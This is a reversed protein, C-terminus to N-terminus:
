FDERSDVSVAGAEMLKDVLQRQADWKERATPKRNERSPMIAAFPYKFADFQHRQPHKNDYDLGNPSEDPHILEAFSKILYPCNESIYLKSIYWEDEGDVHKIMRLYDLVASNISGRYQKSKDLSTKNVLLLIPEKDKGMKERFTKRFIEVPKRDYGVNSVQSIDMDTDYLIPLRHLKRKLLFEAMLEAREAPTESIDDYLEDAAVITGEHDRQLVELVTVNGYDMGGLTNLEPRLQFPIVHHKRRFNSFFQGEFVDFDGLLQAKRKSDPLSDLKRGYESRTIFYKFRKENSWTHYDDVTLGDERLSKLCWFANDWGYAQLFQFDNPDENEEFDREIFIRKHYAHGAGGPNFTLLMKPVIEEEQENRDADHIDFPVHRNFTALFEIEEQTFLESQDIIIDAFGRGAKKKLESINEVSIFRFFSGNPFTIRKDQRHYWTDLIPYRALLPQIHIDKVDDLVRMVILGSTKAYKLRRYIMLDDSTHSKSGGRSGGFGIKTAKSKEYIDRILVDQKPQWHFNFDIRDLANASIAM